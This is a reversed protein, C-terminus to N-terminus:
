VFGSPHNLFPNFFLPFFSIFSVRFRCENPNELRWGQHFETTYWGMFIPLFSILTPATWAVGIMLAATNVTMYTTYSLPKVIAFYRDVAICCLHLTSVTSLHVDLSTWLDCIRYGFNWQGSFCWSFIKETQKNMGTLLRSISLLLPLLLNHKLFANQLTEKETNPQIKM